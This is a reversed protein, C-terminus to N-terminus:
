KMYFLEVDRFNKGFRIACFDKDILCPGFKPSWLKVFDAFLGLNLPLLGLSGTSTMTASEVIYSDTSEKSARNRDAM